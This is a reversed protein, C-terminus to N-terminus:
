DISNFQVVMSEGSQIDTGRLEIYHIGVPISFFTKAESYITHIAMTRNNHSPGLPLLVRARCRGKPGRVIEVRIRDTPLDHRLEKLDTLLVTFIQGNSTLGQAVFRKRAARKILRHTPKFTTGNMLWYLDFLHLRGADTIPHVNCGTGANTYVVLINQPNKSKEVVFLRVEQDTGAHAMICDCLIAVLAIISFLPPYVADRWDMKKGKTQTMDALM